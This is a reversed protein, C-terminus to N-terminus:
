ATGDLKRDAQNEAKTAWRLHDPRFCCPNHCEIPKHAAQMAPEPKPGHAHECAMVHVSRQKGDIVVRGYGKTDTAWPWEWCGDGPLGQSLAKKFWQGRNDAEIGLHNVYTPYKGMNDPHTRSKEM